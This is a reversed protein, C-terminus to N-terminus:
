RAIVMKAVTVEQAWSAQCFYVGSPLREGSAGNGDWQFCHVGAAFSGNALGRVLRGSLDYVGVSVTGELPVQVSVIAAGGSPNPSCAVSFSEPSLLANTVATQPGTNKGNKREGGGETYLRMIGAVAFEGQDKLVEAQIEGDATVETPLEVAVYEPEYPKITSVSLTEGDVLLYQVLSDQSEHYYSMELWYTQSSDLGPVLYVLDSDGYDVDLCPLDGYSIWGTRSQTYQSAQEQGLDEDIVPEEPM